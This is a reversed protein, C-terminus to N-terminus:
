QCSKFALNVGTLNLTTSTLTTASTTIESPSCDATGGSGPVTAIGDVAYSAFNTTVTLTIGSSAWAGINVAGSPVNMTYNVCDTTGSPNGAPCTAPSVAAATEVNLTESSQTSTPPLPITYTTSNVMELASLEVDAITGANSANQASVVGAISANPTAAPLYLKITGTTSGVTVGTVISPQYFSGPSGSTTGVVVVDYTGAPLPCYVFTGDTNAVKAGGAIPRDIGNSDKQELTVVVTGNVPKGTAADVVTGNISTSTTSVEGAHLVPKLRYQGNGEQVISECTNFDIDLDKTQGAGITFAGSAIQGSPIKIGTQAESSLNLTHVSSDSALVVCNASSGCANSSISASNSALIVRIQQYSGAQLEQSDGLTALFCQNNALGLLDVQKPSKSLSPTLDVWSGDTASATSSVNAQVDTITVYVHSFPGTPAQCTAPDSLMISVTGMGNATNVTGSNCSSLALAAVLLFVPVSLLHWLRYPAAKVRVNKM